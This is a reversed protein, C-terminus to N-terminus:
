SSPIDAVNEKRGSVPLGEGRELNRVGPGTRRGEERKKRPMNYRDMQIPLFERKRIIDLLSSIAGRRAAHVRPQGGEEEGEGWLIYFSM